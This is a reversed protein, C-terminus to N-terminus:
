QGRIRYFRKTPSPSPDNINKTGGDGIITDFTIWNLTNLNENYQAEYTIGAQSHFSASFSTGSYSPSLLTPAAAAQTIKFDSFTATALRGNRRSLAGVGVLASPGVSVTTSGLQVWTSGDTSRYTTFVDGARKLRMWGNPPGGPVFAAGNTTTGGGATARFTALVSNDAPYPPTVYVNVAASNADTSARATLIAKATSEISEAANSTVLSTVRVQADFDGTVSRYLFQFQDTANQLDLGGGTVALINSACSYSSGLPNLAGVSASTLRHNRGGLVVTEM